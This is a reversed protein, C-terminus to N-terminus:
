ARGSFASLMVTLSGLGASLLQRLRRWAPVDAAFSGVLHDGAPSALLAAGIVILAVHPAIVNLLWLALVAWALLSPVVAVVYPWWRPDGRCLAQMWWMGGLFSLIAGAYLGGSLSAVNRLDVAVLAVTVCALQPLLGAAGLWVPPKRLPKAPVM